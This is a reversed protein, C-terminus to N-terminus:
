TIRNKKIKRPSFIFFFFRKIVRSKDLTKPEENKVHVALNLCTIDYTEEKVVPALHM